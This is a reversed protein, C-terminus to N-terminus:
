GVCSIGELTVEAYMCRDTAENLRSVFQAIEKRSMKDQPIRVLENTWHRDNIVITAHIVWEYQNPSDETLVEFVPEETYIFSLDIPIKYHPNYMAELAKHNGYIEEADGILCDFDLNALEELFPEIDEYIRGESIDGIEYYIEKNNLDAYVQVPTECDELTSYGIPIRSLDEYDPFRGFEKFCYKDLYKKAEVIWLINKEPM